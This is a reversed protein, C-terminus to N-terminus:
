DIISPENLLWALRPRPKPPADLAALFATWREADLQFVPQENLTLAKEIAIRDRQKGPSKSQVFALNYKSRNASYSSSSKRGFSRTTSHRKWFPM